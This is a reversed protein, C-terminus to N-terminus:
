RSLALPWISVRISSRRFFSVAQGHGLMNVTSRDLMARGDGARLRRDCQSRASVLVVSAPCGDDVHEVFVRKRITDARSRDVHVM